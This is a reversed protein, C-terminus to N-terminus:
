AKLTTTEITKWHGFRLWTLPNKTRVAPTFKQKEIVHQWHPRDGDIEFWRTFRGPMDAGCKACIEPLFFVTIFSSSDSRKEVHGCESCVAKHIEQYNM